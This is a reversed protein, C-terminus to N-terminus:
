LKSAAMNIVFAIHSAEQDVRRQIAQAKHPCAQQARAAQVYLLQKLQVLTRLTVQKPSSGVPQGAAASSSRAAALSRRSASTSTSQQVPQRVAQRSFQVQRTPTYQTHM